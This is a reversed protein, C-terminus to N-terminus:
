KNMENGHLPLYSLQGRSLKPSKLQKMILTKVHEQVIFYRVSWKCQLPM